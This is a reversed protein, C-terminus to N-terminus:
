VPMQISRKITLIFFSTEIDYSKPTNYSTLTHRLMHDGYIILEHLYTRNCETYRTRVLKMIENDGRKDM